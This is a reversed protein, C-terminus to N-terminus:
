QHPFQPESLNLAKGLTVHNACIQSLIVMWAEGGGRTSRVCRGDRQSKTNTSPFTCGNPLKLSQDKGTDSWLSRWPSSYGLIPQIPSTQLRLELGLLKPVKCFEPYDSSWKWMQKQTLSLFIAKQAMHRKVFFFVTGEREPHSNLHLRLKPVRPSKTVYLPYQESPELCEMWGVCVSKNRQQIFSHFARKQVPQRMLCFM